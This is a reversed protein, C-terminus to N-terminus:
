SSLCSKLKNATTELLEYVFVPKAGPWAGVRNFGDNVASGTSEQAAQIDNFTISQKGADINVEVKFTVIKKIPVLGFTFTGDTSGNGIATVDDSYILADGGGAQRQSTINYYTGTYAGVFSRSSDSLTYENNNINLAICRAPNGELHSEDLDFYVYDLYQANYAEPASLAVNSPISPDVTNSIACSFLFLTMALTIIKM